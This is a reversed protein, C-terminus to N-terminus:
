PDSCLSVRVLSRLFFSNNLAESAYNFALVLDPDSAASIVTQTVTKNQLPGEARVFMLPVSPCSHAFAGKVEENLRDLLGQQYDEAVLKLAPPPLFSGM